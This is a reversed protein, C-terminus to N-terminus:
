LTDHDSNSQNIESIRRWATRGQWLLPGPAYLNRVLEKSSGSVFLGKDRHKSKHIDVIEFTRPRQTNTGNVTLGFYFIRTNRM